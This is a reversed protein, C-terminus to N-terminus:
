FNYNLMTAYSKECKKVYANAKNLLLQAVLM